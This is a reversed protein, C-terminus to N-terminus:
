FSPLNKKKKKIFCSFVVTATYPYGSFITVFVFSYNCFMCRSVNPLIVPVPLTKSLMIQLVLSCSTVVTVLAPQVLAAKQGGTGGLGAHDLLVDRATPSGYVEDASSSTDFNDLDHKNQFRNVLRCVSSGPVLCIGERFTRYLQWFAPEVGWPLKSCASITLFSHSSLSFHSEIM